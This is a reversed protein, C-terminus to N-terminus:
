ASTKRPRGPSPRTALSVLRSSTLLAPTAASRRAASRGLFSTDRRLDAWYRNDIRRPRSLPAHHVDFGARARAPIIRGVLETREAMADVGVRLEAELLLARRCPETGREVVRPEHDLTADAVQRGRKAGADAVARQMQRDAGLVIAQGRDAVGAAVV